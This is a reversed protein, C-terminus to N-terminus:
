VAMLAQRISRAERQEVAKIAKRLEPAPVDVHTLADALSVGGEAVARILQASGEKRLKMAMFLLRRSVGYREGVSAATERHCDVDFVSRAVDPDYIPATSGDDKLWHLVVRDGGVQFDVFGSLWLAVQSKTLKSWLYRERDGWQERKRTLREGITYRERKIGKAEAERQREDQRERWRRERELAGDLLAILRRESYRIRSNAAIVKVTYPEGRYLREETREARDGATVIHKAVGLPFGRSKM